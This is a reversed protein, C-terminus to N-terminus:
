VIEPQNKQANRMEGINAVCGDMEDEKLKYDSNNVPSVGRTIKNNYCGNYVKIEPKRRSTSTIQPRRPLFNGCSATYNGLLGCM